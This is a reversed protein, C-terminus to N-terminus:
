ANKLEQILNGGDVILSQGTVYSAAPDAFFAVAAAVEEPTGCRGVPTHRGAELEEPPSSGTRIWGPAVSNVTIGYPGADLALARALGEMGAKAVAYATEDPMAGHAGTVSSVNVIRGYGRDRMHPLAARTVNVVTTLTRDIARQWTAPDYATFELAPDVQGLHAMGANNVLVDLRGFRELVGAVLAKAQADDTLDATASWAGSGLERARDHIRDSTATIAVAAGRGALAKACAFGIGAPSAGGNRDGRRGVADV